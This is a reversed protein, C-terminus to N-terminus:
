WGMREAKRRQHKRNGQKESYANKRYTTADDLEKPEAEPDDGALRAIDAPTIQELSNRLNSMKMAFPLRKDLTRGAIDEIRRSLAPRTHRWAAMVMDITTILIRLIMFEIENM